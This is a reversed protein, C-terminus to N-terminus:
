RSSLIIQERYVQKRSPRGMSIHRTETQMHLGANCWEAFLWSSRTGHTSIFVFQRIIMLIAVSVAPAEVGALSVSSFITSLANM